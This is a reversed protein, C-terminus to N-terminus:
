LVEDYVDRVQAAIVPWDFHQRAYAQCASASPLDVAGTLAAVLRESLHAPTAGACVLAKSLARVVEPLGGVPTVLPPTGAALSEVAVLGFGELAVTPVVSLDAARYALPLDEDPVFGLLRVHEALGAQRIRARLAEAQPGKGAIMLLVDPVARCVADLADILEELGVRRVLRRVSLLTPREAPWGLRRRAEGPTLGTDFRGTEVGGPVIRVQEHPVGYRRCLVDRFAESLVVFRAARRYVLRELAAKARVVLRPEDEADSEGAWPGHFHVVLPRDAVLDLAPLTYLAFHAAVLDPPQEDMIQRVTRRARWLRVPLAAATPAFAEVTGPTERVASPEGTIVGHASVGAQPLHQLLNYYV